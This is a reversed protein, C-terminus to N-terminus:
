MAGSCASPFDRARRGWRRRKSGPRWGRRPERRAPRREAAGSQHFGQVLNAVLLRDRGALDLRVQGAVQRRDAQPRQGLLRLAAVGAGQGQGVVQAPEQAVFLHRGPRDSAALAGPAPAPLVREGRRQRGRHERQQEDGGHRPGHGRDGQVPLAVDGDAGLVVPGLLEEVRQEGLGLGLPVAPLHALPEFGQLGQALRGLDGARQLQVLFVDLLQAGLGDGAQGQGVQFREAFPGVTGRGAM